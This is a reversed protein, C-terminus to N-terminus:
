EETEQELWQKIGLECSRTERCGACFACSGYEFLINALEESSMQRIKDINKM